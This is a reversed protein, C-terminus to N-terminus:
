NRELVTLAVILDGERVTQSSFVSRTSGALERALRGSAELRVEGTTRDINCVTLDGPGGKLGHGLAKATAEKACWCRLMWEERTHSPLLGREEPGLAMSELDPGARGLREVDVGIGEIETGDGVVSVAVGDIHSLSVLLHSWRGGLVPRGNTDTLIELDAPLVKVGHRREVFRRVADKAAVRGLLWQTRRAESGGVQSWAEREARGLVLHGLVRRWIMGHAEFFDAPFGDFKVCSLTESWKTQAMPLHWPPSLVVDGPSVRFWYFAEPLEFRRDEWGELRMSLTGDPRILEINSRISLDGQLALQVRCITQEQAPPPPGYLHLAELRYPFVNFATTLHEGSWYGVVQGAGDLLVPDIIFSPERDSAFIQNHSLVRLRAELGNEGTRDVSTVVRFCPGHFMGETYLRDGVWQSPREGQLSFTAPAPASPYADAFIMRGEAAPTAPPQSPGGEAEYVQVLIEHGPTSPNRRAVIRLARQDDDLGIWRYGRVERMNVLTKGPALLSAAEAMMEMTMTLPVVPLATLAHDAESVKGGLTHHQLFLDRDLSLVYRATIEEGPREVEVADIFPLRKPQAGTPTIPESRPSTDPEFLPDRGQGLFEVIEQITKVSSVHEMESAAPRGVAKQLAGLIEVRKISDIGLDAELNLSVNLIDRPYGTKESILGLLVENLPVMAAPGVTKPPDALPPPQVSPEGIDIRAPETPHDATLPANGLLASMVEQQVELFREMTALYQRMVGSRSDEATPTVMGPLSESFLMDEAAAPRDGLTAGPTHNSPVEATDESASPVALAPVPPTFRGNKLSLWPLHVPLDIATSARTTPCGEPSISVHQPARRAYLPDLRIAVGHAKLLGIMHNLQLTGSRHQVDTAVAVYARGKLIDDVFATLNGRPGVEVFIRFGDDYMQEITERFRVPRAWQGAILSRIENANVPYPQTTVCSYMPYQPISMPVGTFFKELKDCVRQFLPVHYARSFRLVNCVVGKEKLEQVVGETVGNLCCLVVQHPCNDMALFVSSRNKELTEQITGYERAGVAVLTAEPILGEASVGRYFRNLGQILQVVGASDTVDITKSALLAAFEGASHGLVAHPHIELRTLLAYAALNAALVSELAGDMQWLEEMDPQPNAGGGPVPFILQSPVYGRDNDLFARDMLDFHLRVEPFHMCLDLLMNPYQAGEGPFLFAVKGAPALPKEFFYIGTPDKIRVCKADALRGLAFALKEDLELLSAAVVALRYAGSGDRTNLTYALDVLATDPATALYCRLSEIRAVLDDRSAAEFIFVESDWRRHYTVPEGGTGCYEELVVHANIGGFGFANVGARRPEGLDGHIWPRPERNIYFPTKDLALKPNPDDCHLTPPLVNHYLALAAKILGAIGAAPLTHGIMSKVSGIACRPLMHDRGGFVESLAQIETVDGVPTGTGHAEILEVSRPSVGANEYARRLALVEGELRPALVALGQGDSSSGVGKIVAYIRDHDHEAEALRKLVVMGIGDGLVTGDAERDFPRIESRRSLANLQSFIMLFEEPLGIQVGGVLALDSKGALLDRVSIELAILSSACAADVTYAPGMLGLRNAIRGCIVNPVLGPVTEASFPPLGAKLEQKLAALEAETYEPHLQKLLQLTQNIVRGHQLLTTNGRHFYLGRGIVVSTRERNFSRDLYGADALAEHAVRLTLYHAPDGGSVERPMIGYDTPNFRTGTTLYGGRQCYIRDNADSWPDFFLETKWGEPPDTVADVKSFINQWYTQLSDAGPFLCAMGIIAIDGQMPQVDMSANTTM